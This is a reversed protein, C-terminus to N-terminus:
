GGGRAEEFKMMTEEFAPGLLLKNGFEKPFIRLIQEIYLKAPKFEEM